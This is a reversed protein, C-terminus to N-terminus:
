SFYSCNYIHKDVKAVMVVILVWLKSFCKEFSHLFRFFLKNECSIIENNHMFFLQIYIDTIVHWLSYEDETFWLFYSVNEKKKWSSLTTICIVFQSLMTTQASWALYWLDSTKLRPNMLILYCLIVNLNSHKKQSNVM